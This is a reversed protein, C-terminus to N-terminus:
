KKLLKEIVNAQKEKIKSDISNAQEETIEKERLTSMLNEFMLKLYHNENGTSEQHNEEFTEEINKLITNLKEQKELIKNKELEYQENMVNIASKEQRATNLSVLYANQNLTEQHAMAAVKEAEATENLKRKYASSANSVKSILSPSFDLKLVDNNYFEM